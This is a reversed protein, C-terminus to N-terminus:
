KKLHVWLMLNKNCVLKNEALYYYKKIVPTEKHNFIISTYVVINKHGEHFVNYVNQNDCINLKYEKINHKKILLQIENMLEARTIKNAPILRYWDNIVMPIQIVGNNYNEHIKYKYYNREESGICTQPAITLAKEHLRRQFLVEPIHYECLVPRIRSIFESDGTHRWPVYGGVLMFLQKTFFRCGEAARKYVHYISRDSDQFNLMNFKIMNYKQDEAMLKKIMDPNMIDDAGFTLINNYKALTVLTNTTVYVGKNIPFWYVKLNLQTYKNQIKMVKRMTDKCGDVGLIVEIKQYQGLISNLCEEIFDQAQYASIVITIGQQLRNM